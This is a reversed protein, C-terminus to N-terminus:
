WDDLLNIRSECDVEEVVDRLLEIYRAPLGHCNRLFLKRLRRPRLALADVLAQMDPIGDLQNHNLFTLTLTELAPFPFNSAESSAAADSSIGSCFVAVLEDISDGSVFIDRLTALWCASRLLVKVASQHPFLRIDLTELITFPVTEVVITMLDSYPPLDESDYEFHTYVPVEGLDTDGLTRFESLSPSDYWGMFMFDNREGEFRIVKVLRPNTASSSPHFWRSFFSRTANALSPTYTTYPVFLNLTTKESFIIHNCFDLSVNAERPERSDLSLDRLCPLSVVANPMAPPLVGQVAFSELSPSKQLINLLQEATLMAATSGNGYWSLSTLNHLLSSDPPIHYDCLELVRLSPAGRLLVGDPLRDWAFAFLKLTHLNPAPGTFSEFAKELLPTTRTYGFEICLSEIRSAYSTLAKKLVQVRRRTTGRDTFEINLLRPKSRELMESALRPLGFDPRTWLAKQNLAITRWHRCVHTIALWEALAKSPVSYASTKAPVSNIFITELLEPPLRLISPNIHSVEVANEQDTTREGGSAGSGVFRGYQETDNM